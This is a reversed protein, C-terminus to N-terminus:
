RETTVGISPPPEYKLYIKILTRGGATEPDLGRLSSGCARPERGIGPPIELRQKERNTQTGGEQKHTTQTERTRLRQTRKAGETRLPHLSLTGEAGEGGRGGERTNDSGEERQCREVRKLHLSGELIPM